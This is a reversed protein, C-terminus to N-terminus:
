QGVSPPGDAHGSAKRGRTAIRSTSTCFGRPGPGPPGARRHYPLGTPVYCSSCIRAKPDAGFPLTRLVVSHRFRNTHECYQVAIEGFRHIAPIVTRKALTELRRQVLRTLPWAPARRVKDGLAAASGECRSSSIERGRMEAGLMNVRYIVACRPNAIFRQRIFSFSRSFSPFPNAHHFARDDRASQPVDEDAIEHFDAGIVM